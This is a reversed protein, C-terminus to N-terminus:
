NPRTSYDFSAENKVGFVDWILWWKKEVFGVLFGLQFSDLICRSIGTM